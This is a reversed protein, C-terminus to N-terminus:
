QVPASDAVFPGSQSEMKGSLVASVAQFLVMLNPLGRFLTKVREETIGPHRFAALIAVFRAVNAMNLGGAWNGGAFPDQGTLEALQSLEDIGLELHLESAGGLAEQPAEFQVTVVSGDNNINVKPM